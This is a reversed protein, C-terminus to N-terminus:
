GAEPLDDQWRGGHEIWLQKWARTTEEKLSLIYEVSQQGRQLEVTLERGLRDPPSQIGTISCRPIHSVIWGHKTRLEEEIVVMYSSSLLLLTNPTVARRFLLFWRKWTGPQFVLDQLAEGPLLGYIQLGNSFKLPLRDVADQLAAPIESEEPSEDSAPKSQLLLKRLPRSLMEWGVTNFEVGLRTPSDQGKAVIELHGYLLLLSVKMYMLESGQLVTVIPEMDSWISARIHIVGVSTFLLAQRPVYQWGHQLQPPFAIITRIEEGAALSDVAQSRLNSPLESVDRLRLPYREVGHTPVEQKLKELQKLELQKKFDAETTSVPNEDKKEVAFWSPNM